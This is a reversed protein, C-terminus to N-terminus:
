WNTNSSFNEFNMKSLSRAVFIIRLLGDIWQTEAFDTTSGLIKLVSSSAHGEAGEM